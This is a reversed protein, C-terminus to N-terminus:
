GGAVAPLITISDNNAVTTQLSDCFRIDDNNIYINMFGHVKGNAIIREKFGPYTNEINDIIDAINEGQANLCKQNNTITQLITPINVTVPM